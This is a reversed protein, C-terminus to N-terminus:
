TEYKVVYGNEDFGYGDSVDSGGRHRKAHCDNCLAVLNNPNLTVDWNDINAQTIEQKHHVM